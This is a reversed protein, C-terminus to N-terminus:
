YSIHLQKIMLKELKNINPFIIKIGKKHLRMVTRFKKDMLRQLDSNLAVPNNNITHIHDIYKPIVPFMNQFLFVSQGKNYEAIEFYKDSIHYIYGLKIESNKM